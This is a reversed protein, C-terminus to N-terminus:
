TKAGANATAHHAGHESSLTTTQTNTPRTPTHDDETPTLHHRYATLIDRDTIWGILQNNPSLVPLGGPEEALLHELSADLKQSPALTPVNGALDAARAELRQEAVARDLRGVTVM